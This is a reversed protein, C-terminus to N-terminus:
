SPVHVVAGWIAAPPLSTVAPHQDFSARTYISPRPWTPTLAQVAIYQSPVALHSLARNFKCKFDPFISLSFSTHTHTYPACVYKLNSRGAVKGSRARLPELTSTGSSMDSGKWDSLKKGSLAHKVRDIAAGTISRRKERKVKPKTLSKVAVETGNFVGLVVTGFSGFGLVRVPHPIYLDKPDIMIMLLSRIVLVRRLIVFAIVAFVALGVTVGIILGKPELLCMGGVDTLGEDCM